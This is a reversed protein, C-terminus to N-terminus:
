NSLHIRNDQIIATLLKQAVKRRSQNMTTREWGNLPTGDHSTSIHYDTKGAANRDKGPRHRDPGFFFPRFLPVTKGISTPDTGLARNLAQFTETMARFHNGFAVTGIGLAHLGAKVTGFEAFLTHGNAGSISGHLQQTAFRTGLRTFHAGLSALFKGVVFNARGARFTANSARFTTAVTALRLSGIKQKPPSVM